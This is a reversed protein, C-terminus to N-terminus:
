WELRERRRRQRETWWGDCREVVWLLAFWVVVVGMVGLVSVLCLRWVEM